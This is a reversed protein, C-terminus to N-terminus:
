ISRELSPMKWPVTKSLDDEINRNLIALHITFQTRYAMPIYVVTQIDTGYIEKVEFLRDLRACLYAHDQDGEPGSSVEEEKDAGVEEIVVEDRDRDVGKELAPTPRTGIM